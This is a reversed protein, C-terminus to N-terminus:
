AEFLTDFGGFIMRKGDFPMDMMERWRPDTEMSAWCADATAKDPWLIWSFVVSEGEKRQVALPFSTLEGEPVDSEWCERMALAGYDKFLSWGKRASELYTAKNADPVPTLFGSVYSM